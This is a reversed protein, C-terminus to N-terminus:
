RVLESTQIYNRNRIQIGDDILQQLDEKNTGTPVTMSYDEGVGNAQAAVSMQLMMPYLSNLRDTASEGRNFPMWCRIIHEVDELGPTSVEEKSPAPGRALFYSSTIIQDPLKPRKLGTRTFESRGPRSGVQAPPLIM